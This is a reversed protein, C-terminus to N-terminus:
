DRVAGEERGAPHMSKQIRPVTELRRKWWWTAARGGWETGGRGLIAKSIEWGEVAERDEGLDVRGAGAWGTACDACM